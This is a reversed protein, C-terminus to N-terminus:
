PRDKGIQNMWFQGPLYEDTVDLRWDKFHYGSSVFRSGEMIVATEQDSEFSFYRLAFVFLIKCFIEYGDGIDQIEDYVSFEQKQNLLEWLRYAEKYYKDMM